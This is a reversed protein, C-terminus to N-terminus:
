EESLHEIGYVTPVPAVLYKDVARQINAKVIPDDKV